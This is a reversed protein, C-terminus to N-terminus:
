SMTTIWREFERQGEVGDIGRENLCRTVVPESTVRCQALGEGIEQLITQEVAQIVEFTMIVRAFALRQEASLTRPCLELTPLPASPPLGRDAVHDTALESCLTCGLHKLRRVGLRGCYVAWRVGPPRFPIQPEM